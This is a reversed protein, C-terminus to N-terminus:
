LAQLVSHVHLTLAEQCLICKSTYYFSLSSYSFFAGPVGKSAPVLSVMEVLLDLCGSLSIRTADM